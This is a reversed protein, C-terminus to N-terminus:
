LVLAGPLSRENFSGTLSRTYAGQALSIVIDGLRVQPMSVGLGITDAGTNASGFIDYLFSCPDERVEGNRLLVFPASSPRCPVPTATDLVVIRHLTDFPHFKVASIRAAWYGCPGIVWEGPEAVLAGRFSLESLHFRLNELAPRLDETAVPLGNRIPWGGGINLYKCGSIIDDPLTKLTAVIRDVMERPSRSAHSEHLHLGAIHLGDAVLRYALESIELTPIGFKVSYSSEPNPIAVRLGIESGGLTQWRVAQDASDADFIAGSRILVRLLDDDVHAATFSWRNGPCGSGVAIASDGASCIDLGCGTELAAKVVDYEPCAKIPYYYEDVLSAALNTREYVAKRDYVYLPLPGSKVAALVHSPIM